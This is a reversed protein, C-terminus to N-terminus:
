GRSVLAPGERFSSNGHPVVGEGAPVHRVIRQSTVGKM